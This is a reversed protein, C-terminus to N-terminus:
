VGWTQEAELRRTNLVLELSIIGDEYFNVPLEEVMPRPQQALGELYDALLTQRQEPDTITAMIEELRAIVENAKHPAVDAQNLWQDLEPHDPLTPLEEDTFFRNVLHMRNAKALTRPIHKDFFLIGQLLRDFSYVTLALEGGERFQFSGLVLPRESRSIERYVRKFRLRRAEFDFLWHWQDTEPKFTLCQLKQLVEELQSRDYVTYYVRAPQYPEGTPTKLIFM